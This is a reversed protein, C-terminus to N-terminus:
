LVEKVLKVLVLTFVSLLFALGAGIIVGTKKSSEQIDLPLIPTDVLQILPTEKALAIKGLELNQLLIGLITKNAEASAQANQIPAIKKGYGPM